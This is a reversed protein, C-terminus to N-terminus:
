KAQAVSESKLVAEQEDGARAKDFFVRLGSYLNLPIMIGQMMLKRHLHLAGGRNEYAVDYTGFVMTEKVEAPLAEITYGPPPLITVDDIVQYPYHLYVPYLRKSTQFPYKKAAQFVAPSLLLRRETPVAFKPITVAFEATFKDDSSDWDPTNKLEATANLPLGDEVEDELAKEKGKPDQERNHLRRQLAEQGQFVVQLNGRLTGDKDLQFKAERRTVADESRPAPTTILEGEKKGLRMGKVGTFEWPLLGFPCYPVAPDLYYTTAGDDVEALADSFQRSTLVNPAFFMRSRRTVWVMHAEFGAARALAVFLLTLDETDGYGRKLAESADRNERLKEKREEMEMRQREYDLDRMKQVRAYLKRLKTESSDNDALTERAAQEIAKSKAMLREEYNGWSEGVNKWYWDYSDKKFGKVLTNVYFFRVRERVEEEPPMFEEKRFAPINRVELKILGHDDRPEIGPPLGNWTWWLMGGVTGPRTSFVARRTFLDRQIVWSNSLLASPPLVSYMWSGMCSMGHSPWWIKYKYEVISGVGIIPLSFSEAWFGRGGKQLLPKEFIDGSFDVAKGDPQITRAAIDTVRSCGKIFPIEVDAYQKGEETLIKIRYSETTTGLSDDDFEERDLIIASCGPDGPCDNVAMEEPPIPQWQPGQDKATSPWASALFILIALLVLRRTRKM